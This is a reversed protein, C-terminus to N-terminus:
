SIVLHNENTIEIMVKQNSLLADLVLKYLKTYASTSDQLSYQGTANNKVYKSGVLICGDTDSETNGIHILIFQFNPVNQLELTGKHADQGFRRLYNQHIRGVTRLAIQYVGQPIATIKPIKVKRLSDELTYCRFLEEEGRMVAMVGLTTKDSQKIRVM